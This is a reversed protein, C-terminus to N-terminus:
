EEKRFRSDVSAKVNDAYEYMFQEYEENTYKYCGCIWGAINLLATQFNSLVEGPRLNKEMAFDIMLKECEKVINEM